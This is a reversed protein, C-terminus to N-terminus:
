NIFESSHGNPNGNNWRWADCQWKDKGTTTKKMELVNPCIECTKGEPHLQGRPRQGGQQQPAAQQPQSWTPQAQPQSNGWGAPQQPAAETAVVTAPVGGAELTHLTRLTAAASVAGKLVDEINNLKFAVDDPNDGYIVVWPADYGTGAKLTVSLAHETM